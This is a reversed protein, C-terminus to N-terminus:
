PTENHSRSNDNPVTKDFATARYMPIYKNCLVGNVGVTYDFTYM